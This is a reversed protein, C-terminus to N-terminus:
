AAAPLLIRFRTGQGPASVVEISGGHRQVIGHAVFLGLGTGKPRTTYFPEFLHPLHDPEIGAGTDAIEIEVRNSPPNGVPRARISVEGHDAIAQVANQVLNLFVQQLQDTDALVKPWHDAGELRIEVRGEEITPGLSQIARGAVDAVSVPGLTLMRPRTASLLDQIITNLRTVERLIFRVDEHREDGEPFGRSLYQVGTAIGTLPNRIEHAVSSAFRGLAALRDLQRIREEMSRLNSLDTLTAVAGRISGEADRLAAANVEIPMSVGDPRRVIHESPPEISGRSLSRLLSDRWGGSGVIEELHQGLATARPTALIAEASRNWALVQGERDVAIVGLPMNEIVDERFRAELDLAESLNLNVCLAGLSPVIAEVSARRRRDPEGVIGMLGVIRGLQCPSCRRHGGVLDELPAGTLACPGSEVRSGPCVPSGGSLRDVPMDGKIPTVHWPGGRHRGWPDAALTPEGEGLLIWRLWEPDVERLSVREAGTANWARYLTFGPPNGRLMGLWLNPENLARALYQLLVQYPRDPEPDRIAFTMLEGLGELQVRTALERRFNSELDGLLLEVLSEASDRRLPSRRADPDTLSPLGCLARIEEARRWLAELATEQTTHDPTTM